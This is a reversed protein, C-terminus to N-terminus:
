LFYFVVYNDKAIKGYKCLTNSRHRRRAAGVCKLLLRQMVTPHIPTLLPPLPHLPLLPLIKSTALDDRLQAVGLLIAIAFRLM